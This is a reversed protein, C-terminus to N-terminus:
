SGATCYNAVDIYTVHPEPMGLQKSVPAVKKEVFSDFAARDKWVDTVVFGNPDDRVWHFLCSPDPHPAGPGTGLLTLSKFYNDM